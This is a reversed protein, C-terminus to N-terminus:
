RRPTLNIKERKRHVVENKAQKFLKMKKVEDIAGKISKKLEGLHENVREFLKRISESFSRNKTDSHEIKADVREANETIDAEVTTRSTALDTYAGQETARIGESLKHNTIEIQKLLQDERKRIINRKERTKKLRRRIM